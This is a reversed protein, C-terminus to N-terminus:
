ESFLAVIMFAGDGLADSAYGVVLGQEKALGSRTWGATSIVSTEQRLEDAAKWDGEALSETYFGDIEEWIVDDPVSYLKLEVTGRAALSDELSKAVTDALTNAGRELPTVKPHVPINAYTVPPAGCGSLSALLGVVLLAALISKVLRMPTKKHTLLTRM